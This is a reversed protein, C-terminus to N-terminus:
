KLNDFKLVILVLLFIIAYQFDMYETLVFTLLSISIIQLILFIVGDKQKM